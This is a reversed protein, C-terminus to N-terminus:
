EEIRTPRASSCSVHFSNCDHNMECNQSRTYSTHIRMATNLPATGAVDWPERSMVACSNM